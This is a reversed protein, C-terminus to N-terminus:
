LLQKLGYSQKNNNKFLNVVMEVLRLFDMKIYIKLSIKLNSAEIIRISM